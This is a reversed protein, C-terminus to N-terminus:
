MGPHPAGAGFKGPAARNRRAGGRCARPANKRGAFPTLPVPLDAPWTGRGPVLRGMAATGSM